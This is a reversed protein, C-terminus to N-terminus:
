IGEGDVNCYGVVQGGISGNPYERRTDAIFYIGDLGLERVADAEEVKAQRKIYAFTATDSELVKEYDSEKGGLVEALRFATYPVDTVESPNAYITTAEVSTALVIGNRDYITGRRPTTTFSVTRSESAMASYHDAVIVQLYFLRLLFVAALAM